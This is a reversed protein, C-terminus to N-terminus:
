LYIGVGRKTAAGEAADGRPEPGALLEEHISVDENEALYSGSGALPAGSKRSLTTFSSSSMNVKVKMRRREGVVGESPAAGAGSVRILASM